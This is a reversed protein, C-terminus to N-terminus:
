ALEIQSHELKVIKQHGLIELLVMIRQRSVSHVLGELRHLAPDRLRVRRGPQFPSIADLKALNRQQEFDQIAKVIEPQVLAFAAGFRVISNVGRTSRATSISQRPSSPRFFLYRPFMPEYAVLEAPYDSSSAAKEAKKNLTKYMPLYTDFGQQELNALAVNEQKPQTYAVYWGATDTSLAVNAAVHTLEIMEVSKDPQCRM